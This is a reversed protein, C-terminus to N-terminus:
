PATSPTKRSPTNVRLAFWRPAITPVPNPRAHSSYRQSHDRTGQVQHTAIPVVTVNAEPDDADQVAGLLSGARGRLMIDFARRRVHMEHVIAVVAFGAACLLEALLVGVILRRTLSRM